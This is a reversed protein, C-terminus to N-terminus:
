RGAKLMAAIQAQTLNIQAAGDAEGLRSTPSQFTQSGMTIVAMQQGDAGTRIDSIVGIAAGTNDEVTQGIQFSTPATASSDAGAGAAANADPTGMPMQTGLPPTAGHLNEPPTTSPPPQNPQDASASAPGDDPSPAALSASAALALAAALIAQRM